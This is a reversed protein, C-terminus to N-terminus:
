NYGICIFSGPTLSLHFQGPCTGSMDWSVALTGENGLVHPQGLGLVIHSSIPQTMHRSDPPRTRMDSDHTTSVIPIKLAPGGGTLYVLTTVFMFMCYIASCYM